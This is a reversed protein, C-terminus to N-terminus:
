EAPQPEPQEVPAPVVVPVVAPVVAPKQLQNILLLIYFNRKDNNVM